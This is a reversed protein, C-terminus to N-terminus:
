EKCDVYSYRKGDIMFPEGKKKCESYAIPPAPPPYIKESKFQSHITNVLVSINPTICTSLKEGKCKESTDVALSDIDIKLLTNKARDFCSRVQPNSLNEETAHCYTIVTALSASYLAYKVKDQEGTSRCGIASMSFIIAAVTAFPLIKM